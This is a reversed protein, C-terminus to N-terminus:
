QIISDILSARNITQHKQTSLVGKLQCFLTYDQFSRGQTWFCPTTRSVVGQFQLCTGPHFLAFVVPDKQSDSATLGLAAQGLNQGISISVHRIM